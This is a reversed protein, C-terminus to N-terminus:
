LLNYLHPTKQSATSITGHQVQTCVIILKRRCGAFLQLLKDSATYKMTLHCSHFLITYRVNHQSFDGASLYNKIVTETETILHHIGHKKPHGNYTVTQAQGISHSRQGTQRTALRNSPDVHWKTHHYADARVVNINSPSGAEGGCPFPCLVGRSKPGHTNHGFPGGDWCSSLEHTYVALTIQTIVLVQDQTSQWTKQAAPICVAQLCGAASTRWPERNHEDGVFLLPNISVCWLRKVARKGHGGPHAPALLSSRSKM